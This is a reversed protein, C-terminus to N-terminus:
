ESVGEEVGEQSRVDCVRDLLGKEGERCEPEPEGDGRRHEDDLRRHRRLIHRSCRRSPHQDARKARRHTLVSDLVLAAECDMVSGRLFPISADYTDGHERSDEVGTHARAEGLDLSIAGDEEERGVQIPIM